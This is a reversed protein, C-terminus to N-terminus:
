PDRVIRLTYSVTQGSPPFSYGFGSWALRSGVLERGRFLRAGEAKEATFSAGTTSGGFSAERADVEDWCGINKGYLLLGLSDTYRDFFRAGQENMLIVETVGRGTIGATDAEVGLTGTEPDVTYIMTIVESEEASEYVTQLGFVQRIACSATTLIGRSLLISRIAAALLNKAQYVLGNGVTGRGHRFIKEELNLTFSAAIRWVNKDRTLSMEVAGPFLTRIGRKVVPVGFGVAEQALCHGNYFLLWGKQLTSTAYANGAARCDNMSISLGQQLPITINM